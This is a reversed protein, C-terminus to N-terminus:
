EPNGRFAKWRTEVEQRLQPGTVDPLMSHHLVMQVEDGKDQFLNEWGPGQLLFSGPNLHKEYFDRSVRIVTVGQYLQPVKAVFDYGEVDATDVSRVQHWPILFYRVWELKFALGDPTLVLMPKNQYLSIAEVVIWLISCLLVVGAIIRDRDSDAVYLVVIMLVFVLLALRLRSWIMKQGSYALVGHRNKINPLWRM